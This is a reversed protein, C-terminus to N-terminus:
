PEKLRANGKPVTIVFKVGRGPEGNEIITIGTIALIERSLHLGFGTNKGFGLEFLHKKDDASIGKGDDEYVITTALGTESSSIRVTKMQEGGYNLSNQVLNYFVKEFMPDAFVEIERSDYIVQIGDTPLLSAGRRVTDNVGQWAPAKIGISQYDRMFSLQEKIIWVIKKEKEIFERM